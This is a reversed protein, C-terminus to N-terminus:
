KVLVRSCKHPVLYHVPGRQTLEEVVDMEMQTMNGFLYIGVVEAWVQHEEEDV